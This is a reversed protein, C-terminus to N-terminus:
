KVPAKATAKGGGKVTTKSKDDDGAPVAATKISGAADIMLFDVLDQDLEHEGAALEVAKGQYRTRLFGSAGASIVVLM